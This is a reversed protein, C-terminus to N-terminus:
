CDRALSAGVEPPEPNGPFWMGEELDTLLSSGVPHLYHPTVEGRAPPFACIELFLLPFHWPNVPTKSVSPLHTVLPM